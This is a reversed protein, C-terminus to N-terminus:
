NWVLNVTKTVDNGLLSQSSLFNWRQLNARDRSTPIVLVKQTFTLAPLSSKPTGVYVQQVLGQCKKQQDAVWFSHFGTVTVINLWRWGVSKFSLEFSLTFILNIFHVKVFCRVRDIKTWLCSLHNCIGHLLGLPHVLGEKMQCPNRTKKLSQHCIWM